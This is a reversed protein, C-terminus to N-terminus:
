ALVSCNLEQVVLEVAYADLAAYEIQRQTLMNDWNSRQLSKNLQVGTSIRLIDGMSLPTVYLGTEVRTFVEPFHRALCCRLDKKKLLGDASLFNKATMKKEDMQLHFGFVCPAEADAFLSRFLHSVNDIDEPGFLRVDYVHVCGTGNVCRSGIEHYEPVYICILRLGGEESFETDLCIYSAAAVLRLSSAVEEVNQPQVIFDQEGLDPKSLFNPDERDLVNLGLIDEIDVSNNRHHHFPHLNEGVCVGGANGVARGIGLVGERLECFSGRAQQIDVSGFDLITHGNACLWLTRVWTWVVPSAVILYQGIPILNLDHEESISKAVPHLGGEDDTDGNDNRDLIVLIPVRERIKAKVKETIEKKQQSRLTKRHAAATEERAAGVPYNCVTLHPHPPRLPGLHCSSGVFLRQKNGPIRDRGDKIEVLAVTGTNKISRNLPVDISIGERDLRRKDYLVVHSSNIEYVSNPQPYGALYESFRNVNYCGHTKIEPCKRVLYLHANCTNSRDFQPENAVVLRITGDIPPAVNASDQETRVVPPNLKTSLCGRPPSSGDACRLCRRHESFSDSLLRSLEEVDNM